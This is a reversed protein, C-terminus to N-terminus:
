ASMLLLVGDNGACGGTRPRTEVAAEHAILFGHEVEKDRLNGDCLDCKIREDGDGPSRFCTAYWMAPIILYIEHTGIGTDQITIRRAGVNARVRCSKVPIILICIILM